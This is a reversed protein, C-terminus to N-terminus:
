SRSVRRWPGMAVGQSEQSEVEMDQSARLVGPIGRGGGPVGKPGRHWGWPGGQSGWSRGRPRVQQKLQTVEASPEDWLEVPLGLDVKVGKNVLSKLTSMTQSQGQTAAALPPCPPTLAGRGVEGSSPTTPVPVPRLCADPEGVKAYRLSGPREAHVSYRLLRECVTELAEALRTESTNYQIRRKRRGSDLVQGLELVEGSRGSQALMEELEVALYKCVECRTPAREDDNGDDSDGGDLAARARHPAALLAAALLPLGVAWM